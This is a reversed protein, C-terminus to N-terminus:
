PKARPVPEDLLPAFGAGAEQGGAGQLFEGDEVGPPVRGPGEGPLALVVLVAGEAGCALGERGFKLAPGAFLGDEPVM